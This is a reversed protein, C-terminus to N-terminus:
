SQHEEDRIPFRAVLEDAVQRSLDESDTGSFFMESAAAVWEPHHRLASFIASLTLSGPLIHSPRDTEVIALEARLRNSFEKKYLHRVEVDNM